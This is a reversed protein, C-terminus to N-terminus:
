SDNNFITTNKERQCRCETHTRETELRRHWRWVKMEHLNWPSMCYWLGDQVQGGKFRPVHIQECRLSSHPWGNLLSCVALYSNEGWWGKWIRWKATFKLDLSLLRFDFIKFGAAGFWASCGRKSPPLKAQCSSVPLLFIIKLVWLKLPHLFLYDNNKRKEPIKEDERGRGGEKREGGRGEGKKGEGRKGEGRRKKHGGQVMRERRSVRGHTASATLLSVSHNLCSISALQYACVQYLTESNLCQDMSVTGHQQRGLRM